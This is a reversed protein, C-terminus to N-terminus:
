RRSAEWEETTRIQLGSFYRLADAVSLSNLKELEKGTLTQSPIVDKFTQHSVVEIGELESSIVGQSYCPCMSACWVALVM